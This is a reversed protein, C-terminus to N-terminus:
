YCVHQFLLCFNQILLFEVSLNYQKPMFVQPHSKFFVSRSISRRMKHVLFQRSTLDGSFSKDEKLGKLSWWQSETESEARETEVSDISKATFAINKTEKNRLCHCLPCFSHM